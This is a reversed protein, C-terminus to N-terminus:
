LGTPELQAAQPVIEESIRQAVELFEAVTPDRLIPRFTCHSFGQTALEQLRALVVDASGSLFPAEVSPPPDLEFSGLIALKFGDLSRGIRDAERRVADRLADHRAAPDAAEEDVRPYLGDCRRAARRAATVSDGGYLLPIRPQRVPKPLVSVDDFRVFRGDFSAWERTWALDYVQLCEETHTGRDDYSAGLPAFESEHWGSGVGATVRGGSLGDLTALQHALVLPHRLPAILISTWLEIRTTVAAAAAMTTLPDLMTLREPWKPYVGPAAAHRPGGRATAVHDPFGLYAFDLRDAAAFVDPLRMEEISLSVREVAGDQRALVGQSPVLLGLEM